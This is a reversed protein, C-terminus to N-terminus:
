RRRFLRAILRGKPRGAAGADAPLEYADLAQLVYATMDLGAARARARIRDKVEPALRIQLTTEGPM